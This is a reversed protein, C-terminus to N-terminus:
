KYRSTRTPTIPKVFSSPVIEESSLFRDHIEEIQNEMSRVMEPFRIRQIIFWGCTLLIYILFLYPFLNYPAEPVPFWRNGPIGISGLVPISMFGISLVSCVIDRQRLQGIKRLYLPAAVAVLVYVTLFGYSAIAGLYGMSQYLKVNFFALLTPILFTVLSCLSVAIHPTRHSSHASGISAHFLGHRAMTFFIRAAPNISGLVCAFFSFLAGVAILEGLWGLGIQRSLFGLPEEATTISVGAERFAMVEIYTTCLFFLGALIVSGMVARPITKLPRKAEDGLSTASEFGSFGFMVLVLGTAINGPSVGQLTLQPMDWAFGLHSWILLALVAILVLSLGELWLMAMASLQIDKYAAYWSIGAGIALLTISSPHIGIHGILAGSFNAFGCLVSMGTFLYALVLSWGCIVGATPGLGKVIYSYLSGPSASRSAFQNINISVLALGVLGILFSLWTGNGSLAVILGLNSAPITTPAIVAFSQALVEGFSLCDPKLGHISRHANAKSTM